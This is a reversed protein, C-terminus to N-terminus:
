GQGLIGSQTTCFKGSIFYNMGFSYINRLNLSAFAEPAKNRHCETIYGFIGINLFAMAFYIMGYLVVPGAWPMENELTAGFGFFGCVGLILTLVNLSLRFEQRDV